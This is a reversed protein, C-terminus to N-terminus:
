ADGNNNWDWFEVPLTERYSRKTRRYKFVLIMGDRMNGSGHRKLNPDIFEVREYVPIVVRDAWGHVIHWWHANFASHFLLVAQRHTDDINCVFSAAQEIWPRPNKWPPNCYANRFFTQGQTGTGIKDKFVHGWMSKLGDLEEDIWYDCRTNDADAAVDLNFKGFKKELANFFNNPTRYYQNGAM